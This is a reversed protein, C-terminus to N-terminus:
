EGIYSYSYKISQYQQNTKELVLFEVKLMLIRNQADRCSLLYNKCHDHMDSSLVWTIESNNLVSTALKCMAVYM